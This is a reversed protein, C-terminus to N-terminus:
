ARRRRLLALMGISGLLVASPEPIGDAQFFEIQSLSANQGGLTGGGVNIGDGIFTSNVEFRVFRFEGAPLSSGVVTELDFGTYGATGPAALLTANVAWHTWNDANGAGAIEPDGPTAVNSLYIDLTRIGSAYRSGDNYNWLQISDLNYSAGLDWQIWEDAAAVATSNNARWAERTGNGHAGDTPDDLVNPDFEGAHDLATTLTYLPQNFGNIQSSATVGINSTSGTPYTNILTAANTTGGAIILGGAVALPALRFQKMPRHETKYKTFLRKSHTEQVTIM